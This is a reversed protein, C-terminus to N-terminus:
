RYSRLTIGYNSVLDVAGGRGGALYIDRGCGRLAYVASSSVDVDWLKSGSVTYCSIASGRSQAEGSDRLIPTGGQEAFM